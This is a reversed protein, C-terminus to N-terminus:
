LDRSSRRAHDMLVLSVAAATGRLPARVRFIQGAGAMTGCLELHGILRADTSLHPIFASALLM